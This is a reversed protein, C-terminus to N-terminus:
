RTSSVRWMWRAGIRKAEAFIKYVRTFGLKYPLSVHDAFAMPAAGTGGEGGDITIFDPGRGTAKM